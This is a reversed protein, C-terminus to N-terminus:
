LAKKRNFYIDPPTVIGLARIAETDLMDLGVEFSANVWGFGETAVGEFGEGQNGYEADVRHPDTARTVDYKEVVIGNYDVFSKTMIYLWRYILRKCEKTYGYNRLGVWALIQQPAWGYPYDWQRNPRDINIEGRSKKTGAVLGGLEEFKALSNTVLKHAQEETAVGSWLTWFATASEYDSQKELEIDYDFFLSQEENWQYKTMAIRRQEARKFWVESSGDEGDAFSNDFVDRIVEGIDMEYKYLLSNLDVTCLHAARSDLRYSTDHGSERVARDNLFYEDLEPEEVEGGNYMQEFKEFSVGYKEAYPKLLANFHTSETEPPIGLGGPHYCSLGTSKDLRPECVWVSHYEKIAAHIARKLFQKAFVPNDKNELLKKHVQLAMDTLFPPQSRCLYYSRNANLIKGYHKIEFIFHEVMGKALDVRGDLLLGLSIMYSDWGYLENFRGGPVVYPFAKLTYKKGDRYFFNSPQMSPMSDEDEDSLFTDMFLHDQHSDPTEFTMYNSLDSTENPIEIRQMALALLGPKDNISKVYEATIIKPLKEVKLKENDPSLKVFNSFYEFQDDCDYPVYLRTFESPIKSDYAMDMLNSGDLRRTLSTWFSDSILRKLRRVPNENLRAEDLIMQNRGMRKAITLEQLLNSLMYTGRIDYGKYGNSNITRLKLVKPGTDEITIQFNNDTDENKLLEHLTEDINRILFRKRNNFAADDESLRRQQRFTNTTSSSEPAYNNSFFSINSNGEAISNRRNSKANAISFSFTRNRALRSEKTLKSPDTKDGYYVEASALPDLDDSNSSFSRSHKNASVEWFQLM